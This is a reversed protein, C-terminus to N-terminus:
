PTIIMSYPDVSVEKPSTAETWNNIDFVQFYGNKGDCSSVHHPPPGSPDQNRSAVYLQDTNEDVVMGHPQFFSVM